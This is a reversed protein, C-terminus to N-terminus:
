LNKWTVEPWIIDSGPLKRYGSIVQHWKRDRSQRGSRAWAKYSTFHITYTLKRGELAGELHSGTLHRWKRTVETGLTVHRWKRDRSQKSTRTVGKYSTLHVNYALKQGGVAVKLHSGPLKRDGSIVHHWKRNCSQRRSRAVAKYSTFHVNYTLKRGKVAVELSMRKFSTVEQDSGTDQFWTVGNRGRSQRRSRAVAKYATFHVTYALKRGELVGELHSGTLYCWKPTVEPGRLDRSAM